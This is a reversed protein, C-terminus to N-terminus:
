IPPADCLALVRSHTDVCSAQSLPELINVSRQAALQAQLLSSSLSSSSSSANTVHTTTTTTSSARAAATTSSLSTISANTKLRDTVRELGMMRSFNLDGM